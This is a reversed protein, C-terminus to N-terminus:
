RVSGSGVRRLTIDPNRIIIFQPKIGEPNRVGHGAQRLEPLPPMELEVADVGELGQAHAAEEYQEHIRDTLKELGFLKARAIRGAHRMIRAPRSGQVARADLLRAPDVTFAFAGVEAPLTWSGALAQPLNYMRAGVGKGQQAVTRNADPLERFDTIPRVTSDNNVGGERAVPLGFGVLRLGNVAASLESVELFGLEENYRLADTNFSSDFDVGQTIARTEHNSM